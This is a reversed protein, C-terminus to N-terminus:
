GLIPYDKSYIFTNNSDLQVFLLDGIKPKFPFQQKAIVLKKTETGDTKADVDDTLAFWIHSVKGAYRVQHVQVERQEDDNFPKTSLKLAEPRILVNVKTGNPFQNNPIQGFKTFVRDNEVVGDLNNVDGFFSATFPDAPTSYLDEPSGIQVVKGSRMLIIRDALLMAEEPDHTVVIATIHGDSLIRNTEERITNRLTTDLGSFPEDLLLLRPNPAQARALAVRQQEGGSLEHPYKQAQDQMSIQKLLTNIIISADKKNIGSLGCGINQAVTLHPFLAYDQFLFGIGRLHPEVHIRNGSVVQGGISVTGTDPLELGSILRLLTTKGCGSPGLLCVIESKSVTFSVDRIIPKNRFSLNLNEIEIM